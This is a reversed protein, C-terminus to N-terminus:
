KSGNKHVVAELSALREVMELKFSNTDRSLNEVKDDVHDVKKDISRIIGRLEFWVRRALWGFVPIVAIEIGRLITDLSITISQADM